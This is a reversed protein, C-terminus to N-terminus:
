IKQRSRLLTQVDTERQNRAAPEWTGLSISVSRSDARTMFALRIKYGYLGTLLGETALHIRDTGPLVQKETKETRGVGKLRVLRRNGSPAHTYPHLPVAARSVAFAGTRQLYDVYEYSSM